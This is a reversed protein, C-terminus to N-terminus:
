TAAIRQLCAPKAPGPERGGATVRQRGRNAELVWVGQKAWGSGEEM